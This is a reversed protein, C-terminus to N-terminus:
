KAAGAKAQAQDLQAKARKALDSNGAAQAVKQLPEILKPAAAAAADGKLLEESIALVAAGAEERTAADDLYPQVMAAAEVTKISGLAGLLLKKEDASRVVDAGHQCMGLRQDAPLDSNGAWGFYGRLAVLRDTADPAAKALSLLVPAAEASKWAALVRLAAGKVEANADGAASRVADLAKAGGVAGLVRLLAAKQAPTAPALATLVQAVSADPQPQRVCVATIAQEAADRDRAEKADALLALMPQVDSAAGLEGLRKFAASRVAPDTDTVAKFLAPTSATMRRRGVLDIGLVRQGANSSHLLATVAADAEPGPVSALSEQAAQAIERDANALLAVLEPVVNPKGIEAIARVAALRVAKDGEKAKAFLTSLAAADARKGLVGIVVVQNDPRLQPLLSVLMQTVEAGPLELATRAAAAFVIYDSSALSSKLTGLGGKGGALILGRTAAARVQHPADKLKSLEEYLGLASKTEGRATMAEACRLLGECFALRNVPTTKPLAKQIVQAAEDTGIRGLARAAAQAVDPDAAALLGSLPKAAKTSKLVGLSGIVGVLPRGNLQSVADLLAAEAAPDPITELVGRAVHNLKEDPLMAALAPVADKGGVVALQRCADAKDKQSADSKLVAILEDVPKRTLLPTPEQALALSATFVLVVTLTLPKLTM